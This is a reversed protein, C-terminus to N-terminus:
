STVPTDGKWQFSLLTLDDFQPETGAFENVATHVARVLNESTSGSSANLIDIARDTTFQQQQPDIAEPLGDSYLFLATGSQLPLSYDRYKAGDMAGLPLGHRDKLIAFNEGPQKLIPYEHGANAATLSGESLCIVGLWVTVFMNEENRSCLIHNVACLVEAPSLEKSAHDRILTMTVTMFLAAPIGKGSVDGIALGLHDEDISFYDYFDGGVAKAPNMEAFLDFRTCDPIPEYGEPLMDRQIRCAIELEAAIRRKEDRARMTNLFVSSLLLLSFSVPVWLPHYVGGFHYVVACFALWGACSGAWALIGAQLGASWFFFAALFVLVFHLCLQVAAKGEQPYFGKQYAQILNAHIDIGYMPAAHDLSTIYSDQLGPAYAGILIIKDRFLAPEATGDLLDLFTIGECYQGGRASFPIYFFGDTSTKPLDSPPTGTADCWHEYIVRSFSDVKGIGPVEVSLLAHRLIGDTDSMANGHGTDAAMALAEYPSDWSLVSRPDAKYLGEASESYGSGFVAASPVVVNGFEEAAEALLRDGDPDTLSEGTYLVDVGIVAPRADPDAHNLYFVADAMYERPWPLPGLVDLAEQDLGVVVINEAATGTKQYFSDSFAQDSAKLWGFGFMSTMLVAALFAFLLRRSM